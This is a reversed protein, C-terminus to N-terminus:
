EVLRAPLDEDFRDDHVERDVALVLEADGEVRAVDRARRRVAGLREVVAAEVRETRDPNRARGVGREVGEGEANPMRMLARADVFSESMREVGCMRAVSLM